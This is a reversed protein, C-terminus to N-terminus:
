SHAPGKLINKKPTTAIFDKLYMPEFYALDEFQQQGYAEFALVSMGRASPWRNELLTWNKQTAIFESAKLAGNGFFCHENTNDIESFFEANLISATESKLYTGKNNFIATYVEMRRADLMPCYNWNKEPFESGVHVSFSQLTPVAIMPINLGYCLGKASAVGIRLGTYSGPGKAVAVASLNKFSMAAEELIKDIMPLLMEAHINQRNEEHWALTEGNQAIAVSCMQTSTEIQLITAM